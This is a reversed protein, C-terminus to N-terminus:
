KNRNKIMPLFIRLFVTLLMSLVPWAILFGIVFFYGLESKDSGFILVFLCFIWLCGGLIFGTLISVTLSKKKDPPHAKEEITM